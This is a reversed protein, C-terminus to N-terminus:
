NLGPRDPLINYVSTIDLGGQLTNNERVTQTFAFDGISRVRPQQSVPNSETLSQNIQSQLSKKNTPNFDDIRNNTPDSSSVASLSAAQQRLKKPTTLPNQIVPRDIVNRTARPFGQPRGRNAMSFSPQGLTDAM